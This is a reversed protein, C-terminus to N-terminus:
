GAGTVHPVKLTKDMKRDTINTVIFGIVICLPFLWPESWYIAAAAALTGIIATVQAYLM